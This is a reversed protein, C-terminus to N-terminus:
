EDDAGRLVLTPVSVSPYEDEIEDTYQEDFQAVQRDYALQGTEGLWPAPYPELEDEAV